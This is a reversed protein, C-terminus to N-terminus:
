QLRALDTDPHNGCRRYDDFDARLGYKVRLDQLGQTLRIYFDLSPAKQDRFPSSPRPVFVIYTTTVGREALYEAEDLTSALADDESHFGNPQAMEVGGVIGNGVNGRGFIDVARVLRDRWERYGVWKEKGPCIWKFLNENLVELDSTYSSLGTQEYLRALQKENYASGILQSPFKKVKFLEGITQLIEIYHDVEQDFIEDGKTMSGATLCISSFRGPEKIAEAVTEQVDKLRLRSPVGQEKRQQKTHNVIDCFQCGHDEAWFYCFSSQFVNLRQPRASVIHNMPQGSSTVKDYYAPKTWLDLTELPAGEDTLVFHGDIYDIVYPDQELPASDVLVSTGDRLLFSDPRARMKGDRPGFLSPSRLQHIQPDLAEYVRETYFVGRRQADIKLALLRPFNPYKAVVEDFPKENRYKVPTMLSM